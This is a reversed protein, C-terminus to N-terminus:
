EDVGTQEFELSNREAQSENEEQGLNQLRRHSQRKSQPNSLDRYSTLIQGEANRVVRRRHRMTTLEMEHIDPQQESEDDPESDDNTEETLGALHRQYADSMETLKLCYEETFAYTVHGNQWGSSLVEVPIVLPTKDDKIVSGYYVKVPSSLLAFHRGPISDDEIEQEDLWFGFVHCGPRNRTSPHPKNVQLLWWKDGSPIGNDTGPNVAIIDGPVFLYDDSQVRGAASANTDGRQIQLDRMLQEFAPFYHQYESDSDQLIADKQVMVCPGYGCKYRYLDRINQSPRSKTLVNLMRAVTLDEKSANQVQCPVFKASWKKYQVITEVSSLNSSHTPQYASFSNSHYSHPCQCTKKILEIEYRGKSRVYQQQTPHRYQGTQKHKAFGHEKRSENVFAYLNLGALIDQRGLQDFSQIHAELSKVTESFGQVTVHYVTGEPGATAMKLYDKRQAVLSELYALSDVLNNTGDVFPAVPNKGVQALHNQEKKPLFGIAHYIQRIIAMFRCAFDVCTHLKIYGTKSGGFCCFIATDCDFCLGTPESLQAKSAPGDLCGVNGTGITHHIDYTGNEKEELISIKHAQVDTVGLNGNSSLAVDFAQKFGQAAIKIAKTELSIQKINHGDAVFVTGPTRSLCLGNPSQLHDVVKVLRGATFTEDMRVLYLSTGETVAITESGVVALGEPKWNNCSSPLSQLKLTGVFKNAQFSHVGKIVRICSNGKDCVFAIENKGPVITLVDIGAPHRFSAKSALVSSQHAPGTFNLFTLEFFSPRISTNLNLDM